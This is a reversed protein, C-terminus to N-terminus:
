SCGEMEAKGEAALLLALAKASGLTATPKTGTLVAQAAAALRVADGDVGGLVAAPCLVPLGPFLPPPSLQASVDLVSTLQYDELTEPEAWEFWASYSAGVLEVISAVPSPVLASVDLVSLSQYDELSEAEPVEPAFDYGAVIAELPTALFASVDVDSPYDETQQEEWFWEGGYLAQAAFTSDPEAATAPYLAPVELTPDPSYEETEADPYWPQERLEFAAALESLGVEPPATWENQEPLALYDELEVEPFWPQEALPQAAFTEIPEVGAPFLTPTTDLATDNAYDETEDPPIPLEGYHPQAATLEALPAEPPALFELQEPPRQYDETEAAVLTDFDHDPAAQAAIIEPLRVEPPALFELQEPLAAYDEIEVPITTAYDHEGFTPQAAFTEIPEGPAAPPFLTPVVDLAQDPFGFVNGWWADEPDHGHQYDDTYDQAAQVEDSVGVPIAVFAAVDLTVSTLQASDLAVEGTDLEEFWWAEQAGTDTAILTEVPEVAPAPATPIWPTPRPRWDPRFIGPM